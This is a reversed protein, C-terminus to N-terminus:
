NFFFSRRPQRRGSRSGFSPVRQTRVAYRWGAVREVRSEVQLGLGFVWVRVRANVPVDTMHDFAFVAFLCLLCLAQRAATAGFRFFVGTHLRRRRRQWV